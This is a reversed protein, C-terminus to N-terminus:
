YTETIRKNSVEQLIEENSNDICNWQLGLAPYKQRLKNPHSSTKYDLKYIQFVNSVELFIQM